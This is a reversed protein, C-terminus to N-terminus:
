RFSSFSLISSSFIYVETAMDWLVDHWKQCVLCYSALESKHCKEFIQRLVADPLQLFINNNQAQTAPQPRARIRFRTAVRPVFRFNPKTKLVPEDKDSDEQAPPTEKEPTVTKATSAESM